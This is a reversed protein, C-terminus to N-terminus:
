GELVQMSVEKYLLYIMELFKKNLLMSIPIILHSEPCKVAPSYERWSVRDYIMTKDVNIYDMKNLFSFNLHSWESYNMDNEKMFLYLSYYAKMANSPELYKHHEPGSIKFPPIIFLIYSLTYDFDICSFPLSIKSAELFNHIELRFEWIYNEDSFKFNTGSIQSMLTLSLRRLLPPIM